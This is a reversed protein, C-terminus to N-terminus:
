ENINDYIYKRIQALNAAWKKTAMQPCSVELLKHCYANLKEKDSLGKIREEEAAQEQEMRLRVREEAEKEAQLRKEELEALHGEYAANSIAIRSDIGNSVLYKWQEEDCELEDNGVIKVEYGDDYVKVFDGNIRQIFGSNILSSIRNHLRQKQIAEEAEKLKQEQEQLRREAERIREEQERLLKAQNEAEEDRRKKEGDFAEKAAAFANLYDTFDADSLTELNLKHLTIEESTYINKFIFEDNIMVAGLDYLANSRQQIKQLREMEAQKAIRDLEDDVRQKEQKLHEEIPSLLATLRKAEADIARGYKLSDEKLEKRKAEIKTRKSVMLRLAQSVEAYGEKDEIGNIKLPLFQEKYQSVAAEVMDYAKIADAIITDITQEQLM